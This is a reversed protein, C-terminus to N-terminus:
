KKAPQVILEDEPNILDFFSKSKVLGEALNEDASTVSLEGLVDEERYSFGIGQTSLQLKGKKIILFRDDTKVGERRGLNLLGKNL